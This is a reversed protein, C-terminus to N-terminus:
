QRPRDLLDFSAPLTGIPVSTDALRDPDVPQGSRILEQAPAIGDDWRNIHMAAVVRRDSLWFAHFARGDVDGRTVVQEYGGPRFWGSFEMGVDYQDTFFYPIHDFTVQQGLMAKAAVPGGHLANAWHEVRIQKGYLPNFSNAVDGAAYIDPDDTRLSQDVVIGNECTLGAREALETNPRAGIGVVVADAPFESGASTMVASVRGRGRLGTVNHGLRLDVGHAHHLRAFVAGMETGLAARLPTPEPDIVTVECGYERAAAATELGIWGAGVVVIRGGGRIADRLKESDEVRRLYHVGDLDSGPSRLQRPSSGTALLLKTYGIRERGDLEIEHAARDLLTARRGLLLEISKEAYWREDHLYITSRDATGLLYAKSLPPREYPLETEAGVLVIRGRFGEDRLANAAAAGALSAGVIVYTQEEAM